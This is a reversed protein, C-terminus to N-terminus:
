ANNQDILKLIEEMFYLKAEASLLDQTQMIKDMPLSRDVKSEVFRYFYAGEKPSVMVPSFEDSRDLEDLSVLTNEARTLTELKKRPQFLGEKDREMRLHYAFRHSVMAEELKDAAISEKIIGQAQGDEYIAQILESCDFDAKPIASEKLADVFTIVEKQGSREKVTINYFTKGDQTYSLLQEESELKTRLTALDDMGDLPLKEQSTRLFLKKEEGKEAALASEIWEPHGDAIQERAFQDVRNRAREDLKELLTFRTDRTAAKESAIEPFKGEIKPWNEELLEWEWTEKLSVQAHLSQKTVKAVQLTFNEGVLHPARKEVVEPADIAEPLALPNNRSPAVGQLYLEFQKLEDITKFRLEQPLEYLEITAYENAFAGYKSMVLTDVMAASGVDDFLRRFLLVDEWIKVVSKEDFGMQRLYQQYFEYSNAVPRRLQDKVSQYTKESRYLLDALVEDQTVQYGRERAVTATQIIFKSLDEIFAAGFWDTLDRYGFLALNDRLLRFDRPINPYENEQYRLVQTLMQAPFRLEALYLAARADFAEKSSALDLSQLQSLNDSIDPAFLSWIQKASLLPANPHVYPHFNKERQLRSELEQKSPEGVLRFAMGTELFDNSIVGDNLFNAGGGRSSSELSLFKSMQALYSRRVDRGGRTQFATPDEVRKSPAFAQYTGFFAFSCVIIVTTFLFFFKQYKRFFSLM